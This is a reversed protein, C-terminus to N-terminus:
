LILKCVSDTQHVINSLLEGETIGNYSVDIYEIVCHAILAAIANAGPNEIKNHAVNLSKLCTNGVLGKCIAVMGRSDLNSNALSLRKLKSALPLLKGFEVAADDGCNRSFVSDKMTFSTLCAFSPNMKLWVISENTQLVGDLTMHLTCLQKGFWGLAKNLKDNDVQDHILVSLETTHLLVIKRIRKSVKMGQDLPFLLAILSDPLSNM